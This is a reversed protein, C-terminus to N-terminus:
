RDFLSALSPALALSQKVSLHDGDRYAPAGDSRFLPCISPGCLGKLVPVYRVNPHSAAVQELIPEYAARQIVATVHPLGPLPRGGVYLVRAYDQLSLEPGAPVDDLFVFHRDPFMAVLRDLAHRLAVPDYAAGSGDYADDVDIEQPNRYSQGTAEHQWFGTIFITRLEDHQKLYIVFPETLDANGRRRTTLPHRGPLPMFGSSTFQVGALGRSKAAAFLGDSLAGAHSDGALVFSPSANDEGRVCLRGSAARRANVACHLESPARNEALLAVLNRPHPFGNALYFLEGTGVAIASAVVAGIFLQKATRLFQRKRFPLEVFRWSVVALVFTLAIAALEKSLSATAAYTFAVIVPWHWLYLSYSIKGVFTFPRTSLLRELFAGSGGTGLIAATGLTPIAARWGPFPTADSFEFIAFLILGFGALSLLEACWRRRFIAPAGIALAGGLGLEWARPPLLYFAAPTDTRTLEICVIFSLLSLALLVPVHLRKNTFRVIAFLVFPAVIYFQEEVALSWTHLLPKTAAAQVFYGTTFYFYFNSIYITAAFLSRGYDRLDFWIMEVSAWITVAALMTFLAPFLRRIRRDYFDVFSFRHQLTLDYIIKTILYGSIVYFVDVGVYGGPFGLSYHYFIVPMVAIARLGDIDPRYKFHAQNPPPRREIEDVITSELDAM